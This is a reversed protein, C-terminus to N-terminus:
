KLSEMALKYGDAFGDRYGIKYQDPPLNLKIKDTTYPYYDGPYLERYSDGIYSYKYPPPDGVHTNYSVKYSM